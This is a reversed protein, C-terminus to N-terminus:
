DDIMFINVPEEDDSWCLSSTLIINVEMMLKYWLGAMFEFEM